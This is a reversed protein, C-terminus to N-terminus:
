FRIGIAGRVSNITSKNGSVVRMFQIFEYEARLFFTPSLMYDLGAGAAYGYLFQTGRDTDTFSFPSAVIPPITVPPNPAGGPAAPSPVGTTTTLRSSTAHGFAFGATVYPLFNDVAWGGRGRLVGYDTIKFHVSTDITTDYYVGQNGLTIAVRCSTSTNDALYCRSASSSGSLSTHNYNAEIGIVVDDWQANYGVFGGFSAATARDKKFQAWGSAAGYPALFPDNPGLAAFGSFNNLTTGGGAQGGVYFGTWRTYTPPGAVYPSSNFISPEFDAAIAPLTLAIFGLAVVWRRM